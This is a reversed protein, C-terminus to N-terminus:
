LKMVELTKLMDNTTDDIQERGYVTVLNNKEKYYAKLPETTEHFVNLRHTVTEISDDERSILKTGCNECDSGKASPKYLMHYTQGCNPCERRGTIREIIEKDSVEFSLVADFVIGIKDIAQAQIVTRPFGDFIYGNKCDDEGIRKVVIDIVVDDPLLEGKDILDKAKLGLPTGEQINHRIIAGTSITPIGYKQSLVTAQTGKGAAPPGLLIIRM